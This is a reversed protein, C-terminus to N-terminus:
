NVLYRLIDELIPELLKPAITDIRKLYEEDRVIIQHLMLITHERSFKLSLELLRYDLNNAANADKKTGKLRERTKTYYSVLASILAFKESVETPLELEGTSFIKDVDHTKSLAIFSAFDMGTAKGVASCALLEIFETGESREEAVGHILKHTYEWTRPTAFAIYEESVEPKYTFLMQEYALLFNVIRSDIKAKFAFNDVWEKSTPIRLEVHSFRNKLPLAMEFTHARDELKNGGAFISYGEPLVYDGLQRDLILQYSNSQVIPIACNLEDLVIMGQGTTPLLSTPLFDTKTREANPFALGKIEGLDFQHMPLVRFFYVNDKNMDKPDKSFTLNKAKAIMKAVTEFTASKGIGPHGWVFAPVKREVAHKIFTELEQHTIEPVTSYAM